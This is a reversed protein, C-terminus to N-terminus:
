SAERGLEKVLCEREYMRVAWGIHQGCVELNAVRFTRRNKCAPAACMVKGEDM